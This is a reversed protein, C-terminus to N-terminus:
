ITTTYNSLKRGNSKRYHLKNFVLHQGKLELRLINTYLKKEILNINTDKLVSAIKNKDYNSFFNGAMVILLKNLENRSRTLSYMEKEAEVVDAVM